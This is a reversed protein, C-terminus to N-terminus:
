KNVKSEKLHKMIGDYMYLVMGAVIEVSGVIVYQPYTINLQEHFTMSCAGFIVLVAGIGWVIVTKILTKWDVDKM